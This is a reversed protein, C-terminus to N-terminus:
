FLDLDLMDDDDDKDIIPIADKYKNTIDISTTIEEDTESSDFADAVSEYNEVDLAELEDSNYVEVNTEIKIKKIDKRNLEREKDYKKLIEVFMDRLQTTSGGCASVLMPLPEEFRNMISFILTWIAVIKDNDTSRLSEILEPECSSMDDSSFEIGYSYYSDGFNDKELPYQLIRVHKLIEEQTVNLEDDVILDAIDYDTNEDLIKEYVVPTMMLLLLLANKYKVFPNFYDLDDKRSRYNIFEDQSRVITYIKDKNYQNVFYTPVVKGKEDRRDCGVYKILGCGPDDSITIGVFDMVPKLFENFLINFQKTRYAM